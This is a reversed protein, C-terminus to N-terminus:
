PRAEEEGPPTGPGEEKGPPRGPGEEWDHVTERGRRIVPDDGGQPVFARTEEAVWRYNRAIGLLAEPTRADLNRYVQKDRMRDKEGGPWIRWSDNDIVDALLIAGTADVGFEVKLDVLTVGRAEWALELLLFILQCRDAMEALIRRTVVRGGRSKVRERLIEDPTMLPDHRADDKLFLEGLPPDFRHGEGVEPHRRLYSGTALRRAVVELPIMDCRVARFTDASARGRYHSKIGCAELFEFVHVTTTTAHLAKEPLLDHKAGDGATIDDKSRVLVLGSDVPDPLIIKTKGEALKPTVAPMDMAFVNCSM